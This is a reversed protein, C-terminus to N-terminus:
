NDIVAITAGLDGTGAINPLGTRKQGAYASAHPGMSNGAGKTEESTLEGWNNEMQGPAEKGSDALAASVTAVSLALISVFTKM